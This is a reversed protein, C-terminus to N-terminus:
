LRRFVSRGGVITQDVKARLLAEPPQGVIPESLVVLDALRGPELRGRQHVDGGAAASGLTYARVAQEITLAQEPYWDAQGADAAGRRTVVAYLNLLPDLPEVPCDTGLALLAGSQLLSRWAYATACRTGWEAEAVLRDSPCHNPQMSAVVRLDAFRPLDAPDILQAHEIRLLQSSAAPTADARARSFSDLVLRAAADGIAHVAVGLGRRRARRTLDLLETESLRPLGTGGHELYPSLLWATRSGLAGDAFLKVLGIRLWDDALYLSAWDDSELIDRGPGLTVRISLKGAERLTRFSEFATIGEFDHVGVVGLQSAEALVAQLAVLRAQPDPPEIVRYIADQAAELLLGSPRKGAFEEYWVIRGGPPDASADDLGARRLALSNVWVAHADHSTLAVPHAPSFPDLDTATPWRGLRDAQWGRGLIWAGPELTAARERVLQGVAGIPAVGELALQARARAYHDLHTHADIFGPLLPRGRLDISETFPGVLNELEGSRGVALIRGNAVALADRGPQDFIPGGQFILDANM